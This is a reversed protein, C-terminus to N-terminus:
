VQLITIQLVFRTTAFFGGLVEDLNYCDNILEEKSRNELLSNWYFGIYPNLMFGELSKGPLGVIMSNKIVPIHPAIEEMKSLVADFRPMFAQLEQLESTREAKLEFFTEAVSIKKLHKEM